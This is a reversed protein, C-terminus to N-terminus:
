QIFYLLKEILRDPQEVHLWHGGGVVSVVESDPFYKLRDGENSDQIYDSKEGRVFLTPVTAPAYDDLTTFGALVDPLSELLVPLNLRWYFQGDEGRGVSKGLFMTLRYDHLRRRVDEILTKRSTHASLDVAMLNHIINLHYGPSHRSYDSPAIDIVAIHSLKEPHLLGFAMALKGGMSHGVFIAKTLNKQIFYAALDACMEMYTHPARQPSRGHNRLDVLHVNFGHNALAKGVGLWNDSMGFLGHLIVLPPGSGMTRSFLQM